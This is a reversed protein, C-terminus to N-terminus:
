ATAIRWGLAAVTAVSSSPRLQGVHMALLNPFLHPSSEFSKLTRAQLTQSKDMLLMFDSMFRPRRSIGAHAAEYSALDERTLADALANAQTFALCLGEGTIPDITGSADGVLAVNRRTVRRLRRTAALAGRETTTAECHKLREQLLPFQPLADKIRLHSRRSMLVLCIETSSVPTVYFQCGKGWHIEMYESWPAVRYHRRYSFREVKRRFQQL